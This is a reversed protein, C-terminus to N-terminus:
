LIKLNLLALVLLRRNVLHNEMVELMKDINLLDNDIFVNDGVRITLPVVEFGIEDDKIYNSLLNSSSDVIIKYKM